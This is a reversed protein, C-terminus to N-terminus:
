HKVAGATLGQIVWRQFIVVMLIVPLLSLIIGASVWTWQYRFELSFNL